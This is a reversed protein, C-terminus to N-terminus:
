VCIDEEDYEIKGLLDKYDFGAQTIEDLVDENKPTIKDGNKVRKLVRNWKSVKSDVVARYDDPQDFGYIMTLYNSWEVKLNKSFKGMLADFYLLPEKPATGEKYCKAMFEIDKMYDEHVTPSFQKKENLLCDDKSIYIVVGPLGLGQMYHYIQFAHGHLPYPSAEVKQFAYSSVSKIELITKDLEQGAYKNVGNIIKGAMVRLEEPLHLAELNDISQKINPIGGALFDVKGSVMMEGYKTQFTTKVPTQQDYILGSQRLMLEVLYEWINGSVFKRRSRDNPPNTPTVGQMKLLRDIYSGGLESAYIYNRPLMEREDKIISSNWYEAFSWKM